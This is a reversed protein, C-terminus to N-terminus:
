KIFANPNCSHNFTRSIEDLDLYEDNWIQLPDSAAEEWNIVKTIMEDTNCKIWNLFCITTWKKITKTSFIGNWSIESFNIIFSM